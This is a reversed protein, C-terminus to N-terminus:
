WEQMRMKKRAKRISEKRKRRKRDSPKEYYRNEKAEKIIPASVHRLLSIAKNIDNDIVYVTTGCVRKKNNYFAM